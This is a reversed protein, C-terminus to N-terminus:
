RTPIKTAACFQATKSFVSIRQWVRRPIFYGRDIRQRLRRFALQFAFTAAAVVIFATAWRPRGARLISL